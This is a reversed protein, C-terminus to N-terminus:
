ASHLVRQQVPSQPSIEVPPSGPRPENRGRTAETPPPLFDPLRVSRVIALHELYGAHAPRPQTNWGFRPWSPDPTGPAVPGVAVFSRIADALTDGCRDGRDPVAM